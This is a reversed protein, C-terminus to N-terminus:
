LLDPDYPKLVVAAGRLNRMAAQVGAYEAHGTVLVGVVLPYRRELEALLGLGSGDPMEEDTVVVLFDQRALRALADGPGTASTIAFDDGLVAEMTARAAADDDVILVRDRPAAAPSSMRM